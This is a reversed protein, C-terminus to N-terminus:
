LLLGRKGRRRFSAYCDSVWIKLEERLFAEEAGYETSKLHLLHAFGERWLSDVALKHKEVSM